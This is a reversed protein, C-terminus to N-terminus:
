EMKSDDITSDISVNDGQNKKYEKLVIRRCTLLFAASIIRFIPMLLVQIALELYDSVPMMGSSVNRVMFSEMGVTSAFKGSLADNLAAKAVEEPSFLGGSQSILQTERPKGIQELEFGPTDTDPPFVVCVNINYPSVEMSLAEALGLLAFKSASYASYGYIGTLGAISSVFVVIGEKRSKMPPIIAKTITVSGLFNIDLMKKFDKISTEEFRRSISTGACNVLMFVPGLEDEAESIVQELTSIDNTVDASIAMVKQKNSPLSKLLEVKCKELVEIDRAIITVNAGLKIAEFAIAKGIGKSGGTIFVHKGKVSQQKKSSRLYVILITLIIFLVFWIIMKSWGFVFFSISVTGGTELILQTSSCDNSEEEKEEQEEKSRRTGTKGIQGKQDGKKKM